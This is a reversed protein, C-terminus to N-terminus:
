KLLCVACLFDINAFIAQEKISCLRILVVTALAFASFCNTSGKIVFDFASVVCLLRITKEYKRLLYATVSKNLSTAALTPSRGPPYVRIM